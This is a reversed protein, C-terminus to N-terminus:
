MPTTRREPSSEQTRRPQDGHVWAASDDQAPGEPPPVDGEEDPGFSPEPKRPEDEMACDLATM